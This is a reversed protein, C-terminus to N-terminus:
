QCAILRICPGAVLFGLVGKECIQVHFVYKERCGIQYWGEGYKGCSTNRKARCSYTTQIDGQGLLNPALVFEYRIWKQWEMSGSLAKKWIQCPIFTQRIFSYFMLSSIFLTCCIIAFVFSHVGFLFWHFSEKMYLCLIFLLLLAYYFLVIIM